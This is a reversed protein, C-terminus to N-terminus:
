ENETETEAETEAPEAKAPNIIDYVATLMKKRESEKRDTWYSSIHLAIFEQKSMKKVQEDVFTVNEYKM